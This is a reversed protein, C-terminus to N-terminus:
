LISFCLWCMVAGHSEWDDVSCEVKGQMYRDLLRYNSHTIVSDHIGSTGWLNHCLLGIQTSNSILLFSLSVNVGESVHLAFYPLCIEGKRFGRKM